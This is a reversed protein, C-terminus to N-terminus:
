CKEYKWNRSKGEALWEVTTGLRKERTAEQKAESIWEVYDKKKSYPFNEFTELSKSNKRIAAMMYDPIEVTKTGPKTTKRRPIKTGEENLKMAEKIYETLVKESPLDEMSTIKGFQGMATQGVKEMVKHTDKMVSGKWFTFACHAKFGAMSCMIGKYDFHPFSWKMTEQVDPCTTHIISRLHNLIPQAFPQAKGIYTDIRKDTKAM